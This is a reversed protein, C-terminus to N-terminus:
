LSEPNTFRKLVGKSNVQGVITLSLEKVLDIEIIQDLDFRKIEHNEYIGYTKVTPRLVFGPNVDKVVCIIDNSLLVLTGPPYPMVKKVFIKVIDQDFMIGSNGMILELAESPSYGEGVFPQTLSDFFSIISIIQAYDNIIRTSNPFGTGDLREHHQVIANAVVSSFGLRRVVDRGITPHDKFQPHEEFSVIKNEDQYELLLLGIDHLYSSLMLTKLKYDNYGLSTGLIASFIATRTMHSLLYDRYIRVDNVAISLKPKNLIESILKDAADMIIEPDAIKNKKIDNSVDRLAKNAEIVSKQDVLDVEEIDEYGEEEIPVKRVGLKKLRDLMSDTIAVGKGILLRGFGDFIPFQLENGSVIEDLSVKIM